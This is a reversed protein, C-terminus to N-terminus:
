LNLLCTILQEILCPPHHSYGLCKLGPIGAILNFSKASHNQWSSHLLGRGGTCYVKAFVGQSSKLFPVAGDWVCGMQRPTLCLVSCMPLDSYYLLQHLHIPLEFVNLSDLCRLSQPVYENSIKIACVCSFGISSVVFTPPSVRCM